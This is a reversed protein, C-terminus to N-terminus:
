FDIVYMVNLSFPKVLLVNMVSRLFLKLLILRIIGYAECDVRNHDIYFGPERRACCRGYSGRIM